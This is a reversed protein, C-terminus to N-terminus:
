EETLNRKRNWWALQNFSRPLPRSWEGMDGVFYENGQYSEEKTRKLYFHEDMKFCLVGTKIVVKKVGLYKLYQRLFEAGTQVVVAADIQVEDFFFGKEKLALITGGISDGTAVCDEQIHLRKFRREDKPLVLNSLGLGFEGNEYDLRKAVVRAIYDHPYNYFAGILLAGRELLLGLTDNIGERWSEQAMISFIQALAKQYVFRKKGDKCPQNSLNALRTITKVAPVVIKPYRCSLVRFNKTSKKRRKSVPLAKNKLHSFINGFEVIALNFEAVEPVHGEKLRKVRVTKGRPIFKAKIKSFDYKKM